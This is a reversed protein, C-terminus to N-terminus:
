LTLTIKNNFMAEVFSEVGYKNLADVITEPQKKILGSMSVKPLPYILIGNDFIVKDLLKNIRLHTELRTLSDGM